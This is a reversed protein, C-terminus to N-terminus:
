VIFLSNIMYTILQKILKDDFSKISRSKFLFILKIRLNNCVIQAKIEDIFTYETININVLFKFTNQRQKSFLILDVLLSVRAFFDDYNFSFILLFSKLADKSFIM